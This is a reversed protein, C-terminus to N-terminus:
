YDYVISRHSIKMIIIQINQEVIEYIIRYDEFRYRFLDRFEASLPKGLNKPDLALYHDVKNIIKKASTLDIKKLDTLAQEEWYVKYM